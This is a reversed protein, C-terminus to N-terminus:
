QESVVKATGAALHRAVAAEDIAFRAGFCIFGADPRHLTRANVMLGDAHTSWRGGKVIKMPRTLDAGTTGTKALPPNIAGDKLSVDHRDNFWDAVHEFVNGAMNYIGYASRGNAFANVPAPSCGFHSRYGAFTDDPYENGWPFMRRDSGRAAKVWEMETPLRFGMWRALETALENSLHTAPLDQGPQTLTYGKEPNGVLACGETEGAYQERLKANPQELYRKLDRARVEYKAMYFGDLSIEIERYHNGNIPQQNNLYDINQVNYSFKGAPIHIFEVGNIVIERPLPSASQAVAQNATMGLVLSCLLASIKM